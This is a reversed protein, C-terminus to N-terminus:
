QSHQKSVIVQGDYLVTRTIVAFRKAPTSGTVKGTSDVTLHTLDQMSCRVDSQTNNWTQDGEYDLGSAEWAGFSDIYYALTLYVEARTQENGTWANPASKTSVKRLHERMSM